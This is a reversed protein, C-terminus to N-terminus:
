HEEQTVILDTHTAACEQLAVVILQVLCANETFFLGGSVLFSLPTFLSRTDQGAIEVHCQPLTLHM